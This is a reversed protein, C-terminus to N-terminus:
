LGTPRMRDKSRRTKLASGRLPSGAFFEALNGTRKTKREWEEAAVVVAAKKGHRTITQPGHVRAQEIVESLKAKAKAVTWNDTAMLM